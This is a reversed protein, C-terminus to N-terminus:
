SQMEGYGPWSWYMGMRVSVVDYSRMVLEREFDPWIVAPCKAYPCTFCDQGRCTM